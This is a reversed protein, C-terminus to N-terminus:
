RLTRLYEDLRAYSKTTGDKMGTALAADRAEKTPYRVTCTMMTARDHEILVRAM